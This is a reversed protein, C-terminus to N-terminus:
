HAPVEHYEQFLHPQERMLTVAEDGPCTYLQENLWRFRSGLLKARMRELLGSQKQQPTRTSVAHGGAHLAQEPRSNKKGEAEKSLGLRGQQGESPRKSAVALVGDPDVGGRKRNQKKPLPPVGDPKFKNKSRRKQAPLGNGGAEFADSTGGAM